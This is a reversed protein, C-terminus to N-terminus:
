LKKIAFSGGPIPITSTGGDNRVGIKDFFKFHLNSDNQLFTMGARLQLIWYKAFRLFVKERPLLVRGPPHLANPFLSRLGEGVTQSPEEEGPPRPNM